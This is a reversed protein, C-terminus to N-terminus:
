WEQLEEVSINGDAEYFEECDLGYKAEFEEDTLLEEDFNFMKDWCEKCTHSILLERADASLYPFIDQVNRRNPRNFEMYDEFYCELLFEKGCHDCTVFFVCDFKREKSM